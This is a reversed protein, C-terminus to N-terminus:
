KVIFPSDWMWNISVIERWGISSYKPPNQQIIFMLHEPWAYGKEEFPEDLNRINDIISAIMEDNIGLHPEAGLKSHIWHVYEHDADRIHHFFSIFFFAWNIEIESIPKYYTDIHVLHRKYQRNIVEDTVGMKTPHNQWENFWEIMQPHLYVGAM